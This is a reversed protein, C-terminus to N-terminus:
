AARSVDLLFCELALRASVNQELYGLTDFTAELLRAWRAQQAPVPTDAM